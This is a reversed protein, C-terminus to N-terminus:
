AVSTPSSAMPDPADDTVLAQRRFWLMVGVLGILVLTWVVYANDRLYWLLGSGSPSQPPVVVFPLVVVAAWWARRAPRDVGLCVWILAPVIWVYHHVWSIPSLMLGTGACVLTALLKSSRNYAVAALTIGTCLVALAILDFLAAPPSLHARVIAAHLAQNGLVQSNGIRKVDLAEKTFYLWSAHPNVAFMVGTVVVFTLAANRAARWQRSVVLYPIFVLPTLKIAAALGVLVGEPLQRDRWSVGVTLDTVIMLVLVINVQGIVLDSRVPYLLFGVPALLILATRWDSRVVTRSQAASISVAILSTLALLNTVDWITQGAFDSYHSVPWFLVAAVPPYTFLLHKGLITIESSYLSSGFVHQGGMRYVRFDMQPLHSIYGVYYAALFAASTFGLSWLTATHFRPRWLSATSIRVGVPLDGVRSAM